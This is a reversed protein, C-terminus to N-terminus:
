CANMAIGMKRLLSRFQCFGTVCHGASITLVVDKVLSVCDLISLESRRRNNLQIVDFPRLGVQWRKGLRCLEVM